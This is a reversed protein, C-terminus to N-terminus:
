RWTLEKYRSFRESTETAAFGDEEQALFSSSVTDNGFDDGDDLAFLKGGLLDGTVLLCDDLAKQTLVSITSQSVITIMHSDSEM